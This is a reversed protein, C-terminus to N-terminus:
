SENKELLILGEEQLIVRWRRSDVLHGTVRIFESLSFSPYSGAGYGKYELNLLLYKVKELYRELEELNVKEDRLVDQEAYPYPFCYVTKRMALAACLDATAMVPAGPPILNIFKWAAKAKPSAQYFRKEYINKVGYFNRDSLKEERLYGLINQGFNSCICSVLVVLALVLILRQRKIKRLFFVVAIFMLPILPAAYYARGFEIARHCLFIQFFVPLGVYLELSFLPLFLLPALIGALFSLHKFGLIHRFFNVPHFVIFSLNKAFSEHELFSYLSQKNYLGLATIIHAALFTYIIGGIMLRTGLRRNAGSVLSYIGLMS